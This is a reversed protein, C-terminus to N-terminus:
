DPRHQLVPFTVIFSAGEGPKNEVDIDGRHRKIIRHAISLGLGTGQAKTTFFPNFINQLINLPIGGGTDNVEVKVCQRDKEEMYFYTRVKLTGGTKMAQKANLFLNFFLHRIQRHDGYILPIESFEKVVNVNSDEFELRLYSFAEEITKHLNWLQFNAVESEQSFDLIDRLTKELREVEDVIVNLYEKLPSDDQVQKHVRRAFGGISVLPNRIEHAMGASIEGLAAMKETEILKEKAEKLEKNVGDIFSYLRSNELALGAQHALMSLTRLQDRKVNGGRLSNDVVIVGIAKQKAMLPVVAFSAGLYQYLDLHEPPSFGSKGSVNIADGKLLSIALPGGERSLPVSMTLIDGVLPSLEIRQEARNEGSSGVAEM